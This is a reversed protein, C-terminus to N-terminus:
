LPKHNDTITDHAIVDFAAARVPDVSVITIPPESQNEFLKEAAKVTGKHSDLLTKWIAAGKETAVGSAKSDYLAKQKDIDGHVKTRVATILKEMYPGYVAMNKRTTSEVGHYLYNKAVLMLKYQAGQFPLKTAYVGFEALEKIQLSHQQGYLAGRLTTAEHSMGTVKVGVIITCKGNKTEHKRQTLIKPGFVCEIGYNNLVQTLTPDEGRIKSYDVDELKIAYGSPGLADREDKTTMDQKEQTEQMSDADAEVAGVVIKNVTELTKHRWDLRRAFSVVQAQGVPRTFIIGMILSFAGMTDLIDM